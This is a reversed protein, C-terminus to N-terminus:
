DKTAAIVEQYYPATNSNTDDTARPISAGPATDLYVLFNGSVGIYKTLDSSTETGSTVLSHSHTSQPNVGGGSGINGASAYCLMANDQWDGKRTWGAPPSNQGFLMVTTAPATLNDHNYVTNDFVTDYHSKKTADGIAVPNVPDYAM